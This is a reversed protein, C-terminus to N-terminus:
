PSPIAKAYSDGELADNIKIYLVKKFRAILYRPKWINKIQFCYMNKTNTFLESVVRKHWFWFSIEYFILLYM